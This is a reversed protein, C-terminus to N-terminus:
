GAIKLTYVVNYVAIKEMGKPPTGRLVAAGDRVEYRFPKGTVPDNPVPVEIDELSKPLEGKHAAAHLRVAELTQILKLRQETRAQAMHVKGLQPLLGKFFGDRVKGAADLRAAAKHYPLAVWRVIEDLREEFHRQEDLLVVQAPRMAKVADPKLGYSVLRERAEDVYAPKAAHEKLHARLDGPTRSEKLLRETAAVAKEITADDARGDRPLARMEPVYFIREGQMGNRLAVLPAPLTALAWYLNPGGEQIMEEICPVTLNALALGVLNAIPTPHDGLQHALKFLTKVTAVADDFRKEAIEGRLRVKLASAIQRLKQVEPLLTYAGERRLDGVIQWDLHSLRAAQDAYRLSKGGYGRVKELPLDKLPCTQWKERNENEAKDGYFHSQEMFSKLYVQLASGTEIEEVGPLFQYKLAPRPAPLAKVDFRVRLEGEQAPLTLLAMLLVTM